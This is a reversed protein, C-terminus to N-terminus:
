KELIKEMNEFSYRLQLLSCKLYMMSTELFEHSYIQFRFTEIYIYEKGHIGREEMGGKVALLIEIEYFVNIFFFFRAGGSRPARISHFNRLDSRVYAM